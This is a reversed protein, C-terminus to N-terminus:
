RAVGCLTTEFGVGGPRAGLSRILTGKKQFGRRSATTAGISGM